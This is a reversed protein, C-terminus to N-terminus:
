RRTSPPTSSRLTRFQPFVGLAVRIGLLAAPNHLPALASCAEIDGIVEPTVLTSKTFREGGHVVRHGVANLAGLWGRLSLEALVADLAAAHDAAELPLTRKGDVAKFTIAPNEAGLREALGSMLPTRSGTDHVAFKLSSSGSNLVLVLRRDASVPFRGASMASEGAARNRIHSLGSFVLMRDPLCLLARRPGSAPSHWHALAGEGTIALISRRVLISTFPRRISM